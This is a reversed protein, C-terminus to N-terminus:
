ATGGGAIGRRRAMREYLTQYESVMRDLTFEGVARERGAIGMRRRAAPDGLLAIVRDATAPSDGVPVVHGTVGPVILEATGGADSAVVPRGSAMAEIVILPLGERRSTHVVVDFAPLVEQVDSRHGLLFVTGALKTHAVSLSIESARPGGGVVFAALDPVARKVLLVTELFVDWGKDDTLQAVMGITPADGTRGVEGLLRAKAGERPRYHDVDVGNRILLIESRDLARRALLRGRGDESVAVIADAARLTLTDVAAYAARKLAPMLYDEVMVPRTLVLPVGAARAARGAYFDAALPGQTHVVDIRESRMTDALFRGAGTHEIGRVSFDILRVGADRFREFLAGQSSYVVVPDFRGRDLRKLSELARKEPGGVGRAGGRTFGHSVIQLIRM